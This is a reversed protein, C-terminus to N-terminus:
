AGILNHVFLFLMPHGAKHWKNFTVVINVGLRDAVETAAYGRNIVQSIADSKFEETYKRHKRRKTM